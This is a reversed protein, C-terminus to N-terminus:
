LQFGIEHSLEGFNNLYVDSINILNTNNYGFFRIRNTSAAEYDNLSDGILCIEDNKIESTKVIKSVLCEKSLPSGMIDSFLRYINLKEGLFRLEDSDSGSAIFHKIITNTQKIFELAEM